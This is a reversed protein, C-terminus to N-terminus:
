GETTATLHMAKVALQTHSKSGTPLTDTFFQKAGSTKPRTCKSIAPSKSVLPICSNESRCSSMLFIGAKLAEFNMGATHFAAASRNEGGLYQCQNIWMLVLCFCFWLYLIPFYAYHNKERVFINAQKYEPSTVNFM